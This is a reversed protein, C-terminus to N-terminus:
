EIQTLIKAEAKRLHELFTTKSIDLDKALGRSTAERPWSYYGNERAHDFIERQRASLLNLISQQSNSRDYTSIQLIRHRRGDGGRYSCTTREGRESRSPGCGDM